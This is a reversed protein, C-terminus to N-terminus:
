WRKPRFAKGVKKKYILQPYHQNKHPGVYYFLNGQEAECVVTASERTSHGRFTFLSRFM